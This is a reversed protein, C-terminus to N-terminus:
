RRPDWRTGPSPQRDRQREALVQAAWDEALVGYQRSYSDLLIDFTLVFQARDRAQDPWLARLGAKEAESEALARRLSDYPAHKTMDPEKM